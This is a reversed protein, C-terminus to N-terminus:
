KGALRLDISASYISYNVADSTSIRFMCDYFSRLSFYEVKLVFEGLRGVRAWTGSGWTRGGDYSPEIMIRPNDGQGDILGTGTEMIIELRSMQIRKGKQNFLNGNASLTTRSRHLIEGDNTFTDFDLEYIKGNEQDAVINKNYCSILSSGQYIDGNTGSSIEMWGNLGLAENMALTVNGTPFSIVYFNHGQFTMTYSYADDVTVMKGITNSIADTSIVQATGATLRYIKHDDGLWYLAEDTQTISHKAACGVNVVQNTIRDIPPNGVGSNYWAEATRIGFRWITEEFVYDRVLDDPKTEAGVVNLPDVTSGDGVNSVSTFKPKTYLFQNNIFAVSIAGTINPDTVETIDGQLSDYQWVKLDSVIFLNEGDDAMICREIGPIDGLSEHEGFRSIRYLTTGKVQYLVEAMRWFGRDLESSSYDGVPKLGPFPMLVYEEKGQNSIQQYWNKTQQSSLPKSRSQYTPGTINFSTTKFTM